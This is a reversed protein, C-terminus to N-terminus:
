RAALRAQFVCREAGEGFFKKGVAIGVSDPLMPFEKFQPAYKGNVEVYELLSLSPLRARNQKAQRVRIRVGLVIIPHARRLM